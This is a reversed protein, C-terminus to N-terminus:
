LYRRKLEEILSHEPYTMDKNFGPKRRLMENWLHIAYSDPFYPEPKPYTTDFINNWCKYHIPYFATVPLARDLYGFYEVARTLGEPGTEGWRL